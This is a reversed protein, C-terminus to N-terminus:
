NHPFLYHVVALTSLEKWCHYIAVVATESCVDKVPFNKILFTLISESLLEPGTYM